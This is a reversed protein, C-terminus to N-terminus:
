VPQDGRLTVRQIVRHQDGFDGAVAHQTARNDWFGVSGPAWRFRCQVDPIAAQRQLRDLLPMSEGVDMGKIGMTFGGNVYITKRGTEPHTRVVPHEQTPHKARMKEQIEPPQNWGFARM